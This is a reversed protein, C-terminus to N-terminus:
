FFVIAKNRGSEKARYLALDAEDIATYFDAKYDNSQGISFWSIGASVTVPVIASTEKEIIARVREVWHMAQDTGTNALMVLFEEGGHRVCMDSGSSRAQQQLVHAVVRLVQDGVSHGHTDNICKFHDIDVVVVSAEISPDQKKRRNPGLLIRRITGAVSALKEDMGRRNLLGTLPDTISVDRLHGNEKILWTITATSFTFGAILLVWQLINNIEWFVGVCLLLAMPVLIGLVVYKESSKM